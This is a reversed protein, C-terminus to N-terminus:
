AAKKEFLVRMKERTVMGIVLNEAKEKTQVDEFTDHHIREEVADIIADDLDSSVEKLSEKLLLKESLERLTKNFLPADGKHFIEFLSVNLIERSLVDLRKAVPVEEELYAVNSDEGEQKIAFLETNGEILHEKTLRPIDLYQALIETQERSYYTDYIDQHGMGNELHEKEHIMAHKPNISDGDITPLTVYIASNKSSDSEVFAAANEPGGQLVVKINSHLKMLRALIQGRQVERRFDKRDDSSLGEVTRLVRAAGDANDKYDAASLTEFNMVFSFLEKM